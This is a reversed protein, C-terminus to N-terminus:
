GPLSSPLLHRFPEAALQRGAHKPYSLMGGGFPMILLMAILLMLLDTDM